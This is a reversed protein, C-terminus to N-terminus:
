RFSALACFKGSGNSTHHFQGPCIAGALYVACVAETLRMRKPRRQPAERCAPPGAMKVRLSSVLASRLRVAVLAAISGSVLSAFSASPTGGNPKEVNLWRLM